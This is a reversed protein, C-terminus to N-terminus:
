APKTASAAQLAQLAGELEPLFKEANWLVVELAKEAEELPMTPDLNIYEHGTPLSSYLKSLQGALRMDLLSLKSLNAEFVTKSFSPNKQVIDGVKQYKPQEGEKRFSQLMDKYILMFADVKNKNESVEGELTSLLVYRERSALANEKRAALEREERLMGSMKDLWYRMMFVTILVGALPGLILALPVLMPLIPQLWRPVHSEREEEAALRWIGKKGLRAAEQAQAYTAAFASGGVQRRDVVAYGHHLLELGLDLNSHGTCTATVNPATGSVVKCNVPESGILTDLLDVAKLQIPSASPPVGRIGWLTVTTGEAQLTVSDIATMPRIIRSADEGEAQAMGAALVLLVAISLFRLFSSKRM